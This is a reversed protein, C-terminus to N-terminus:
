TNGDALDRAHASGLIPCRGSHPLAPPFSKKSTGYPNLYLKKRFRGLYTHAPTKPKPTRFRRKAEIWAPDMVPSLPLAGVVTEMTKSHPHLKLTAGHEDAQLARDVQAALAAQTEARSPRNTRPPVLSQPPPQM